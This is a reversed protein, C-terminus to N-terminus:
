PWLEGRLAREYGAGHSLHNRYVALRGYRSSQVTTVKEWSPNTRVAYAVMRSVARSHPNTMWANTDADGPDDFVVAIDVLRNNGDVIRRALAEPTYGPYEHAWHEEFYHFFPQGAPLVLTGHRYYTEVTPIWTYEDFYANWVLGDGHSALVQALSLDLAKQGV